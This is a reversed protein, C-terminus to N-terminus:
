HYEFMPSSQTLPALFHTMAVKTSSTRKNNEDFRVLEIGVHSPEVNFFGNNEIHNKKNRTPIIIGKLQNQLTNEKRYKELFYSANGIGNKSNLFSKKYLINM